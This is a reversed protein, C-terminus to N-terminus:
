RMTGWFSSIAIEVKGNEWILLPPPPLFFPGVVPVPFELNMQGEKKILKPIDVCFRRACRTDRIPSLLFDHLLTRFEASRFHLILM